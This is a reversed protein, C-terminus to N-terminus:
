GRWETDDVTTKFDPEVLGPADLGAAEELEGSSPKGVFVLRQRKCKKCADLIELSCTDPDYGEYNITSLNNELTFLGSARACAGCGICVETQIKAEHGSVFAHHTQVEPTLILHLDAADVDCDALLLPGKAMRALASVLSTKGTGGKGSLVVIEKM